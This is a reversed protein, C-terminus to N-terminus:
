MGLFEYAGVSLAFLSTKILAIEARLKEPLADLFANDIPAYGVVGDHPEDQAPDGLSANIRRHGQREGRDDQGDASRIEVDLSRLSEGDWGIGQFEGCENKTQVDMKDQDSAKELTPRKLHSVLFDKLGLPISSANSRLRHGHQGQRGNRFTCFISDLRSSSSELNRELHGDSANDIQRTSIARSSSPEMLLPHHFPVAVQDGEILYSDMLWGMDLFSELLLVLASCPVVFWSSIASRSLTWALGIVLQDFGKYFWAHGGQLLFVHVDENEHCEDFFERMIGYCFVWCIPFWMSIHSNWIDPVRLISCLGTDLCGNRTAVHRTGALHSIFVVTPGNIIRAVNLDAMLGVDKIDQRRAYSMELSGLFALITVKTVDWRCLADFMSRENTTDAIVMLNQELNQLFSEIASSSLEGVYLGDWLSHSLDHFVIKYPTSECLKQIGCGSKAKSTYYQLCRNLGVILDHVLSSTHSNAASFPMMNPHSQLTCEVAVHSAKRGMIRIFYYCKCITDFGVNTEIFQNKLDRKLTIPVGVVMTACKTEAFTEALQTIDGIIDLGDLNLAKCAEIASNVQKTTRILGQNKYIALVDDIMDLTEQAFLGESGGTLDAVATADGFEVRVHRG